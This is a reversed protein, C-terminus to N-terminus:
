VMLILVSIFFKFFKELVVLFKLVILFIVDNGGVIYIVIFVVVELIDIVLEM